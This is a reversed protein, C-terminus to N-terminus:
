NPWHPGSPQSPIVMFTNHASISGTVKVKSRKVEFVYWSWLAHTHIDKGLKIMRVENTSSNNQLCVCVGVYMSVSPVSHEVQM